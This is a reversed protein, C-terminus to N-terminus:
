SGIWYGNKGDEVRVFYLRLQIGHDKALRHEVVSNSDNQELSGLFVLVTSLRKADNAEEFGKADEKGDEKSTQEDADHNANGYRQHELESINPSVWLRLTTKDDKGRVQSVEQRVGDV